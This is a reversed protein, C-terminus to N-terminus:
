LGKEKKAEENSYGNSVISWILRASFWVTGDQCSRHVATLHGLRGCASDFTMPKARVCMENMWQPTKHVFWGYSSTHYACFECKNYVYTHPINITWVHFCSIKTRTTYFLMNTTCMIYIYMRGCLISITVVCRTRMRFLTFM